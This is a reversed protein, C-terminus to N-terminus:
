TLTLSRGRGVGRGRPLSRQPVAGAWLLVDTTHLPDHRFDNVGLLRVDAMKLFDYLHTSVHDVHCWLLNYNQRQTGNLRSKLSSVKMPHVSVDLIDTKVTVM